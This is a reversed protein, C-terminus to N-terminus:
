KSETPQHTSRKNGDLSIAGSGFLVDNPEGYQDRKWESVIWVRILLPISSLLLM